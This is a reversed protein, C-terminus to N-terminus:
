GDIREVTRRNEVHAVAVLDLFDACGTLPRGLGDRFGHREFLRLIGERNMGAVRSRWAGHDNM